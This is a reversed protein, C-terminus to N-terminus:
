SLAARLMGIFTKPNAVNIETAVQQFLQNGTAHINLQEGLKAAEADTVAVVAAVEVNGLRRIGEIHVRGVFGAGFVATKFQRM